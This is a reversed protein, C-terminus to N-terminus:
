TWLFSIFVAIGLLLSAVWVSFTARMILRGWRGTGLCGRGKAGRLVWPIAVVATMALALLGLYHHALMLPGPSAGPETDAGYFTPAMVAVVTVINLVVLTAMIAGHPRMRRKVRMVYAGYLLTLLIAGQVVIAAYSAIPVSAM